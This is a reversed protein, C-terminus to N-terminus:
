AIVQRMEDYKTLKAGLKNYVRMRKSFMGRFLPVADVFDIILPPRGHGRQIRGVIQTIVGEGSRPTLAVLTDLKLDLGEAAVGYSAFVVQASGAAEREAKKAAGIMFGTTITERVRRDLDRLLSIRDALVIISRGKQACLTIWAAAVQQRMDARSNSLDTMLNIMGAINSVNKGAKRVVKTYVPGDELMVAYVRLNDAPPRVVEYVVEGISWGLFDSLGDPRNPTASLGLRYRCGANAVARSLQLAATHHVEDAVMLACGAQRMDYERVALSKLSAIVHTKDEVDFTNQKIMGVRANPFYQLIAAAWQSVLVDTHCVILCRVGMKAAVHLATVTKGYGCPLVLLAGGGYEQSFAKMIADTAEVQHPRLQTITSVVDQEQLQVGDFQRDEVANAGLRHLNELGWFKPVELVKGHLTDRIAYAVLTGPDSLPSLEKQVVTLEQM